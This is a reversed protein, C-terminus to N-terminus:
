KENERRSRSERDRRQKIVFLIVYPWLLGLIITSEVKVWVSGRVKKYDTHLYVYAAAFPVIVFYLVAAYKAATYIMKGGM